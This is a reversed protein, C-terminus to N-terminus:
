NNSTIPKALGPMWDPPSQKPDSLFQLFAEQNVPDRISDYTSVFGHNILWDFYKLAEQNHEVVGKSKLYQSLQRLCFGQVASGCNLVEKDLYARALNGEVVTAQEGEFERPEEVQKGAVITEQAMAAPEMAKPEITQSVETESDFSGEGGPRPGNGIDLLQYTTAQTSIIGTRLISAGSKKLMGPLHRQFSKLSMKALKSLKSGSITVQGSADATSFLVFFLAMEHLNFSTYPSDDLRMNLWNKTEAPLTPFPYKRDFKIPLGFRVLQRPSNSLGKGHGRTYPM